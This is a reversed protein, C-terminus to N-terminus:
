MSLEDDYHYSQEPCIVVNVNCCLFMFTKLYLKLLIHHTLKPVVEPTLM